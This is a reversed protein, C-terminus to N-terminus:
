DVRLKSSPKTENRPRLLWHVVAGVAIVWAWWYCIRGWDIFLREPHQRWGQWKDFPNSPRYSGRWGVGVTGGIPLALSPGFALGEYDSSGAVPTFVLPAALLLFWLPKWRIKHM